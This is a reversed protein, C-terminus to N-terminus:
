QRQHMASVQGAEITGQTVTEHQERFPLKFKRAIEPWFERLVNFGVDMGVGYGVRRAAPEFGRRHDPHYVNSIAVASVTGLWESFNFMRAGDTERHAVVVHAAAYFFREGFGGRALRYYRPDESFLTPYAFDKFFASSAKDAMDAGFRKGYGIAGRGFSPDNNKAQSVGADYAASLFTLPDLSDQVFLRVKDKLELTCLMAGNKYRSAHAPLM